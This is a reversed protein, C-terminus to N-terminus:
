LRLESLEQSHGSDNALDSSRPGFDFIAEGLLALHGNGGHSPHALQELRQSLVSVTVSAAM